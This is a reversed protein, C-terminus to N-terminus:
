GSPRPAVPTGRQPPARADILRLQVLERGGAAWTAVTAARDLARGGNNLNPRRSSTVILTCAARDLGQKLSELQAV